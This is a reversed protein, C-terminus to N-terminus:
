AYKVWLVLWAAQFVSQIPMGLMSWELWGPGKRFARHLPLCLATSSVMAADSLALQWIKPTMLSWMQHRLPYGTDKINRLATTVVMIALGVWFLVFFGRFDGHESKPDFHSVRAAYDISPFLRHKQQARVQKRASSISHASPPADPPIPTSRGSCSILFSHDNVIRLGFRSGTSLHLEHHDTKSDLNGLSARHNSPKVPRPRLIHDVAGNLLPSPSVAM